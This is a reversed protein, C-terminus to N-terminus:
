VLEDLVPMVLTNVSNATKFEEVATSLEEINGSGWSRILTSNGESDNVEVDNFSNGNVFYSVTYKNYTEHSTYTFSDVQSSAYSSWISHLTHQAAEIKESWEEDTIDPNTEKINDFFRNRLAGYDRKPIFGMILYPEKDSEPRLLETVLEHTVGHETEDANWVGNALDRVNEEGILEDLGLDMADIYFHDPQIVQGHTDLYSKSTVKADKNAFANADYHELAFNRFNAVDPGFKKLIAKDSLDEMMKEFRIAFDTLYARELFTPTGDTFNYDFKAYTAGNGEYQEFGDPLLPGFANHFIDLLENDEIPVTFHNGKPNTFFRVANITDALYFTGLKKPNSTYSGYKAVYAAKFTEFNDATTNIKQVHQAYPQGDKTINHSFGEATLAGTTTDNDDLKEYTGKDVTKQGYSLYLHDM